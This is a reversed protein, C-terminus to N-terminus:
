ASLREEIEIRESLDLRFMGYPTVHSYILPTLGRLDEQKMSQFQEPEALVRQILLTNIFVLCSQLLHLSLAALEQQDLRNTAFEGSRRFRALVEAPEESSKIISSILVSAILSIFHISQSSSLFHAADTCFPTWWPGDL